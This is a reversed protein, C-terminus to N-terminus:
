VEIYGEGHEYRPNWRGCWTWQERAAHGEPLRKIDEPTLIHVFVGKLHFCGEQLALQHDGASLKIGEEWSKWLACELMMRPGFFIDHQPCACLTDYVVYHSSSKAIRRIDTTKYAFLGTLNNKTATGIQLGKIVSHLVTYMSCGHVAETFTEKYYMPRELFTTTGVPFPPTPTKLELYMWCGVEHVHQMPANDRAADYWVYQKEVAPKLKAALEPRLEIWRALIRKGIEHVTALSTSPDISSPMKEMAEILPWVRTYHACPKGDKDITPLNGPDFEPMACLATSEKNPTPSPEKGSSSSGAQVNEFTVPETSGSAVVPQVWAAPPTDREVDPAAAVSVWPTDPCAGWHEGSWTSARAPSSTTGSRVEKLRRVIDEIDAASFSDRLIEPLHDNSLDCDETVMRVLGVTIAKRAAEFNKYYSWDMSYEFREQIMYKDALERAQHWMAKTFQRRPKGECGRETERRNHRDPACRPWCCKGCLDHLCTDAATENCRTCKRKQGRSM